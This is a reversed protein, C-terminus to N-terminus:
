ARLSKEIKSLSDAMQSLSAFPSSPPPIGLFQRVDMTYTAEDARGRLDQWRVTVQFPRLAEREREEGRGFLRPDGFLMEVKEEQLIFGVPTRGTERRLVIRSYHHEELDVEFAVNKAPGRGVNALALNVFPKSSDALLYAVVKPETGVRALNRNDRILQWTLFATVIASVAIVTTAIAAIAPSYSAFWANLGAEIEM